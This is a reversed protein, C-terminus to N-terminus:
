KRFAREIIDYLLDNDLINEWNEKIDKLTNMNYNMLKNYTRGCGRESLGMEFLIRLVYPGYIPAQNEMTNRYKALEKKIKFYDLFNIKLNRNRMDELPILEGESDM